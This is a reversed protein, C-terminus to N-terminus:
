FYRSIYANYVCAFNIFAAAALILGNYWGRDMKNEIKGSGIHLLVPLIAPIVYRFQAGAIYDAGVPTFMIYMSAEAIIVLSFSILMPWIHAWPHHVLANDYENKDTFAAVMLLVLMLHQNPMIGLYPYNTFMEGLRNLNFYSNITYDWLVNIFKLPEESIYKVQRVADVESGGRTDSPLGASGTIVLSPLFYTFLILGTVALLSVVFYIHHKRDIFKDRPLLILIWLIPIYVSKTLCGFAITGIMIISDKLTIKENRNQWQAIYYSLGVATFGVLYCDYNYSSAMFMMTPIMLSVAVIMKGSKLKRIAFFGLFAYSILGVFRGMFHILYYPMGFARGLFLGIGNFVEPIGSPVVFSRKEEGGSQYLFDQREHLAQIGGNLDYSAPVNRAITIEDQQTLVISDVYSTKLAMTYHVDEDWSNLGTHPVYYSYLFGVCIVLILFLYEPQTKLTRRFIFVCSSFLGVIGAFVIRPSTMPKGAFVTCFLWFLFISIGIGVPIALALLVTKKGGDKIGKIGGLIANKMGTWAKCWTMWLLVAFFLVTVIAIRIPHMKVPNKIRAAQSSGVGISKLAIGSGDIDIRLRSYEAAPIDVAWFETGAPCDSIVSSAESYEDEDNPYFIQIRESSDIPKHYNFYVSSITGSGAVSFYMQPDPAITELGEDTIEYGYLGANPNPFIVTQQDIEETASLTFSTPQTNIQVIELLFAAAVAIILFIWWRKM